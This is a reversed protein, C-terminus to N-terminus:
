NRINSLLCDASLLGYDELTLEAKESDSLFQTPDERMRREWEKFGQIIQEKTVKLEGM